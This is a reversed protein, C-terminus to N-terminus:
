TGSKVLWLAHIGLCQILIDEMVFGSYYADSTLKSRILLILMDTIAANHFEPFV